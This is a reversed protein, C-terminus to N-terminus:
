SRKDPAHELGYIARYVTLSLEGAIMPKMVMDLIGTDACKEKTLGHSFGTFLVIPVAANIERIQKALDLGNIGPMMM